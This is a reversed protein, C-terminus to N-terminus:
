AAVGVRCWLWVAGRIALAWFFGNWVAEFNNWFLDRDRRPDLFVRCLITTTAWIALFLNM